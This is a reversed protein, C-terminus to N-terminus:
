RTDGEAAATELSNSPPPAREKEKESTLVRRAPSKPKQNPMPMPPSSSSQPSKRPSLTTPRRPSGYAPSPSYPYNISSLPLTAVSASSPVDMWAHNFTGQQQQPISGAIFLM